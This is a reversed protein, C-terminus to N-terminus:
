EGNPTPMGQHINLPHSTLSKAHTGHAPRPRLLEVAIGEGKTHRQRICHRRGAYPLLDLSLDQNTEMVILVIEPAGFLLVSLWSSGGFVLHSKVLRSLYSKYM